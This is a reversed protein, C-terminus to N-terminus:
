ALAERKDASYLLVGRYGPMEEALKRLMEPPWENVHDEWGFANMRNAQMSALFARVLEALPDTTM